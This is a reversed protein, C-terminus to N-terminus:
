RAVRSRMQARFRSPPLLANKAFERSFHHPDPYGCREGIKTVAMDTETLLRKAENIRQERLWTAPPVGFEDLFVAHFRSISLGVQRAMTKTDWPDSLHNAIRSTLQQLSSDAGLQLTSSEFQALVWGACASLQSHREPHNSSIEGNVRKFLEVTDPGVSAHLQNRKALHSHLQDAAFGDFSFWLYTWFAADKACGHRYDTATDVWSLTFPTTRTVQGGLVIEGAGDTTLILTHENFRTTIVPDNPAFRSHGAALVGYPYPARRSLPSNYVITNQM